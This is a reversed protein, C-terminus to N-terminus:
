HVLMKPSYRFGVGQVCFNQDIVAKELMTMWRAFYDAGYLVDHAYFISVILPSPHYVNDIFDSENMLVPSLVKGPFEKAFEYVIENQKHQADNEDLSDDIVVLLDIDSNKRPTLRAFSRYVVLAKLHSTFATIAHGLIFECAQIFMRIIM